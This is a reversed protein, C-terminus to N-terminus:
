DSLEDDLLKLAKMRRGAGAHRAATAALAGLHAVREKLHENRELDPSRGDLPRALKELAQFGRMVHGAALQNRANRLREELAKVVEAYDRVQAVKPM